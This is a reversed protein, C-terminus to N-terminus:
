LSKRQTLKLISEAFKQATKENIATGSAILKRPNLKRVEWRWLNTTLPYARGQIDALVAISGGYGINGNHKVVSWKTDM